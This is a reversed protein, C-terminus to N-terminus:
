VLVEILEGTLLDDKSTIYLEVKLTHQEYDPILSVRKVIVRPEYKSITQIIQTRLVDIMETDLPEFVSARLDTGFDPRMVRAGRTTMILQIIGDRLSRLNENQALYGGVGNRMPFAVGLIRDASSTKIYNLDFNPM